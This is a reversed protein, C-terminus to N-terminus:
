NIGCDVLFLHKYWWLVRDNSRKRMLTLRGRYSMDRVAKTIIACRNLRDYNCYNVTAGNATCILYRLRHRQQYSCFNLVLFYVVSVVCLRSLMVVFWHKDIWDLLFQGASWHPVLKSPTSITYYQFRASEINACRNKTSNIKNPVNSEVEVTSPLWIKHLYWHLM